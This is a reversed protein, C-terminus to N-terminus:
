GRISFGNSGPSSAATSGPSNAQALGHEPNLPLPPALLPAAQGGLRGKGVGIGRTRARCVDRIAVALRDMHGAADLRVAGQEHQMGLRLVDQLRRDPVSAQEGGGGRGPEPLEAVDQPRFRRAHRAIQRRAHRGAADHMEADGLPVAADVVQDRMAGAVGDHDLELPRVPGIRAREILDIRVDALEQVRDLTRVVDVRQGRERHALHPADRPEVARQDIAEIGVPIALHDRLIPALPQGGIEAQAKGRGVDRGLGALKVPGVPQAQDRVGIVPCPRDLRRQVREAALRDVEAKETSRLTEGTCRSYIRLMPVIADM